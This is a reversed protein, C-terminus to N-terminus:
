QREVLLRIRIKALRQPAIVLRPKDRLVLARTAHVGSFLNVTGTSRFRCPTFKGQDGPWRAASHVHGMGAECNWAGRVGLLGRGMVMSSARARNRTWSSASPRERCVIPCYRRCTRRSAAHHAWTPGPPATSPMEWSSMARNRADGCARVRRSVPSFFAVDTFVRRELM